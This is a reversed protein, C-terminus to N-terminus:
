HCCLQVLKCLQALELKYLGGLLFLLIHAYKLYSSLVVLNLSLEMNGIPNQQVPKAGGRQSLM